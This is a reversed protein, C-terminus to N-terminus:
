RTPFRAPRPSIGAYAHSQYGRPNNLCDGFWTTYM